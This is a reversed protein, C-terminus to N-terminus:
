SYIEKFVPHVDITCVQLSGKICYEWLLCIQGPDMCAGVFGCVNVHKLEM